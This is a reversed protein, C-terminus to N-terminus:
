KGPKGMLPSDTKTYGAPVSFEGAPTSRKEVKTVVTTMKGMMDMDTEMPFGDIKQYADSLGSMNTLAATRKGFEMLDKRLNDFGTVDKTVWLTMMEKDGRKMIYKTCAFGAITKKEGTASVEVPAETGGMVGAMGEMQKRQDPPLNKIKEKFAAMKDGAKKAYAEMDAFTIESYTKKAPDVNYIKEQDIRLIMVMTPNVVKLMRPMAFNQSVNGKDGLPGGTTTSEWYLGQSFASGALLLALSLGAVHARRYM